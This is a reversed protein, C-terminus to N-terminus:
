GMGRQGGTDGGGMGISKLASQWGPMGNDAGGNGSGFLLPNDGIGKPSFKESYSTITPKKNNDSSAPPDSEAPDVKPDAPPTFVQPKPLDAVFSKIPNSGGGLVSAGSTPASSGSGQSLTTLTSNSQAAFPAPTSPFDPAPDTAPIGLYGPIASLGAIGGVGLSDPALAGIDGHALANYVPLASFADIGSLGTARSLDGNTFFNVLNPIASFAAIDTISSAGLASFADIKTIDGNLLTPVASLAAYGGVGDGLPGALADINGGLVQQLVPIASVVDSDTLATAGLLSFADIGGLGTAASTDGSTLFSFLNPIGNFADLQTIPNAALKIAADQSLKEASSGAAPLTAAVAICAVCAM